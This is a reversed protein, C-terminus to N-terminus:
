IKNNFHATLLEKILKSRNKVQMLEAIIYLPLTFSMTHTRITKDVPPRGAKKQTM